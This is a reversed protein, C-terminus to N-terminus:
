LGLAPQWVTERVAPAVALGFASPRVTWRPVVAKPEVALLRSRGGVASVAAGALPGASKAPAADPVARGDRAAPWGARGNDVQRRGGYAFAAVGAAVPIVRADRGELKTYAPAGVGASAAAVPTGAVAQGAWGFREATAGVRGADACRGEM